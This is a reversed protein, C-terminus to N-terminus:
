FFFNELFVNRSIESVEEKPIVDFGGSQYEVRVQAM